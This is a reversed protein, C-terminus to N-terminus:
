SPRKMQCSTPTAAVYPDLYREEAFGHGTGEINTKVTKGDVKRWTGIYLGQQLAHDARRMELEEGNQGKMKMGEMALAVKVPETSKAKAISEGLFRVMNVMAVTYFEEKYKATFDSHYGTLTNRKGDPIWYSVMRVREAGAAGIATPSGIVGAYFTYFNATLGADNAAKILLSLDQGWNGTIVTDAGSAKIKAIYPAFDKVQGIPHLDKGVVQVDPRKRAILEESFKQVQQGFSYNQGLIYLKKVEPRDKMYSTIAEVKMDVGADFRFHYFSCKSNTLDPDIAAYNLFVLEKGPNRENHKNIADILVGAVASSNGQTVYRIGQDTAAKLMALAEQPSGKTDFPVAEFKVGATNGKGSYKDAAFQLHKLQNQGVNGFAGSLGDIFAIKVTQGSQAFAAGAFALSLAVATKSFSFKM